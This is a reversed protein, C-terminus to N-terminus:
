GSRLQEEFICMLTTEALNPKLLDLKESVLWGHTKSKVPWYESPCHEALLNDRMTHPLNELTKLFLRKKRFFFLKEILGENKM